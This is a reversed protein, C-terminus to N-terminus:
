SAGIVSVWRKDRNDRNDHNDHHGYRVLLYLIEDLISKISSCTTM